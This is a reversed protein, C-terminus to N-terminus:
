KADVRGQRSPEMRKVNLSVSHIIEAPTPKTVEKVLNPSSNHKIDEFLLKKKAKTNKQNLAGKQIKAVPLDFASDSPGEVFCGQNKM